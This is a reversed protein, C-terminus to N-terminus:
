EGKRFAATSPALGFGEPVDAGQVRALVGILAMHHVTHSFVFGLERTFTSAFPVCAGSSTMGYAAIVPRDLDTEALVALDINIDQLMAVAAASDTEVATARERADYDLM